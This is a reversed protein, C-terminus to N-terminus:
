LAAATIRGEALDVLTELRGLEKKSMTILAM